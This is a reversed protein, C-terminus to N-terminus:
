RQGGKPRPIRGRQTGRGASPRPNSPHRHPSPDLCPCSSFRCGLLGRPRASCPKQKKVAGTRGLLVGVGQASLVFGFVGPQEEKRGGRWGRMCKTRPAVPPGVPLVPGAERPPWVGPLGRGPFPAPLPPTGQRGRQQMQPVIVMVLSGDCSLMDPPNPPSSPLHAGLSATAPLRSPRLLSADRPRACPSQWCAVPGLLASPLHAPPPPRECTLSRRPLHQRCWRPEGLLRQSPHAGNWPAPPPQPRQPRLLRGSAGEGSCTWGPRGFAVRPSGVAGCRGLSAVTVSGLWKPM